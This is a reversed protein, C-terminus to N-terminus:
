AIGPRYGHGIIYYLELQSLATDAAVVKSRFLLKFEHDFFSAQFRVEEVATDVAPVLESTGVPCLRDGLHLLRCRTKLRVDLCYMKKVQVMKVPLSTNAPHLEALNSRLTQSASAPPELGRVGVM